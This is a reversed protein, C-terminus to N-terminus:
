WAKAMGKAEDRLEGLEAHWRLWKDNFVRWHMAWKPHAVRGFQKNERNVDLWDRLYSIYEELAIMEADIRDAIAVLEARIERTRPAVHIECIRERDREIRDTWKWEAPKSPVVAAVM